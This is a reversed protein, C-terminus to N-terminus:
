GVMVEGLVNAEFGKVRADWAVHREDVAPVTIPHVQTGSGRFRSGQGFQEVPVGLRLPGVM